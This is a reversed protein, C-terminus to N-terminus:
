IQRKEKVQRKDGVTPSFRGKKDFHGGGGEGTKKKSTEGWSKRFVGGGGRGEGGCVGDEGEAVGEGYEDGEEYKFQRETGEEM